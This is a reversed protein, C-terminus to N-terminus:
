SVLENKTLSDLAVTEENSKGSEGPGDSVSGIPHTFFPRVEESSQSHLALRDTELPSQHKILRM